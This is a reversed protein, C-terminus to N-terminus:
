SGIRRFRQKVSEGRDREGIMARVAEIERQVVADRPGGARFAREFLPLANDLEGRILHDHARVRLWHQTELGARSASEIREQARERAFNMFVPDDAIAAVAPDSYFNRQVAEARRHSERLAYVAAEADGAQAAARGRLYWAISGDRYREAAAEMAAVPTSWLAAQEFGRFAFIACLLVVAGACAGGAVRRTSVEWKKSDVFQRGFLLVGGILGPLIPYLYRDAVPHLFPFIQSIPAFAAAAGLWWAAEESRSRLTSVIRLLLAGGVPVAILWWPDFVELVPPPEQLPGIGYSTAAMALYRLGIAAVSRLQVWANEYAPEIHRGGYEFAAMQPISYLALILVWGIVGVVAARKPKESWLFAAAMPLAFLASAKALLAAAFLLAAALPRERVWLLAGLALVASLTPKLQSVPAVAEVNAPHVIFFLGGLLAAVAGLRSRVLLLVLLLGALAHLLANTVHYPEMWPGFLFRQVGHALLHVPAYNVVYLSAPGGPVFLEKVSAPDLSEIFPNDVVYFEDDGVFPGGLAPWHIAVSLVAFVLFIGAAHRPVSFNAGIGAERHSAPRNVM